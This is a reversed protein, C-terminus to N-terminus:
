VITPWMWYGEKVDSAVEESLKRAPVRGVSGGFNSMVFLLVQKPDEADVEQVVAPSIVRDYQSGDAKVKVKGDNDVEIPHLYHVIRGVSPTQEAM